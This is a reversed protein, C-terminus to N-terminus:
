KLNVYLQFSYKMTCCVTRTQSPRCGCYKGALTSEEGGTVEQRVWARRKAALRHGEGVKELRGILCNSYAKAATVSLIRRMQSIIQGREVKSGERGRALGMATLRCDTLIDLLGHIDKSEEQWPGIVLGKLRGYSELRRVLPGVQGNQVGHYAKDLKDLPRRYEGPLESARREVGKKRRAQM